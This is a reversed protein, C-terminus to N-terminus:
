GHPGLALLIAEAEAELAAMEDSYVGATDDIASQVMTSIFKNNFQIPVKVDKVPSIANDLVASRSKQSIFEMGQTQSNLANALFQPSVDGSTRSNVQKAEEQMSTNKHDPHKELCCTMNLFAAIKGDAGDDQLIIGTFNGNSIALEHQMNDLNDRIRMNPIQKASEPGSTGASGKKKLKLPRWRIQIYRPVRKSLRERLGSNVGRSILGQGGQRTIKRARPDYRDSVMEDPEFFNYYFRSYIKQIEPVDAFAILGSPYAYVPM